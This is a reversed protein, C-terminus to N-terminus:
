FINMQHGLGKLVPLFSSSMDSPRKRERQDDAKMAKDSEEM